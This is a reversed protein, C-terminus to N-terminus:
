KILEYTELWEKLRVGMHHRDTFHPHNYDSSCESILNKASKLHFNLKEMDRAISHLREVHNSLETATIPNNKRIAEATARLYYIQNDIPMSM